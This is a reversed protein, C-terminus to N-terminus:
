RRGPNEAVSEAAVRGVCAGREAGDRLERCIDLRRDFESRQIVTQTPPPAPTTIRVMFGAFGGSGLMGLLVKVTTSAAFAKAKKALLEFETLRQDLGLVAGELKGLREGLKQEVAIAVREAQHAARVAREFDDGQDESAM